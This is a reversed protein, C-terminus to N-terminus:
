IKILEHGLANNVYDIISVYDRPGNYIMAGGKQPVFYITPFGRLNSIRSIFSKDAESDLTVFNLKDKPVKGGLQQWIPKFAQCHGCWEAKVLVLSPNNINYNM